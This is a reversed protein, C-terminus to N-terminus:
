SEILSDRGLISTNPPHRIRSSEHLESSAGTDKQADGECKRDEHTADVQNQDAIFQKGSFPLIRM